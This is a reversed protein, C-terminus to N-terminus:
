LPVALSSSAPGVVTGRQKGTNQQQQQKLMMNGINQGHKSSSAADKLKRKRKKEVLILPPTTTPEDDVTGKAEAAGDSDESDSGNDGERRGWDDEGYDVYGLGDDDVVFDDEQLRRRVLMQYDTENVEDYVRDDEDVNYTQLGTKGSQRQQKLKELASNPKKGDGSAARRSM